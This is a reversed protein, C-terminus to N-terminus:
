SVESRAAFDVIALRHTHITYVVCAAATRVHRHYGATSHTGADTDEDNCDGDEEDDGASSLRGGVRLSLPYKFVLHL